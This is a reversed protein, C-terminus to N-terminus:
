WWEVCPHVTTGISFFLVGLEDADELWIETRRELATGAQIAAFERMMYPSEGWQGLWRNYLEEWKEKSEAQWLFKPAPAPMFGLQSCEFSQLGHHVSYSWHLLYLSFVARRKATVHVWSEWSPRENDREETLMLGTRAVYSVVRQLCLYIAPDVLSVAVQGQGPFMLMITYMVLAQLASLLHREDLTRYSEFLGRMEQIIAQRVMESAGVSQSAWVKTLAICNAMPRLATDPHAHTFHLMPPAQFGKALAKPWTKMVRLLTEMSHKVLPPTSQPASTNWLLWDDPSSFDGSDPSTGSSEASLAFNFANAPAALPGSLTDITTAFPWSSVGFPDKEALLNFVPTTSMDCTDAFGFSALPSNLNLNMDASMLGHPAEAFSVPVDATYFLDGSAEFPESGADQEPSHTGVRTGRTMPVIYECLTDRSECRSCRPRRLDCRTKSNTCQRCSKQRLSPAPGPACRKSHRVLSSKQTFTKTCIHCQLRNDM